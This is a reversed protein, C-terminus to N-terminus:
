ARMVTLVYSNSCDPPGILLPKLKGSTSISINESGCGYILRSFSIGSLSYTEQDDGDFSELAIAEVGNGAVSSAEIYLNNEDSALKIKFDKDDAVINARSVAVALKGKNIVFTKVAHFDKYIRGCDPFKGIMVRSMYDFRVATAYIAGDTPILKVENQDCMDTIHNIANPLVLCSIDTTSGSNDCTYRALKYSDTSYCVARGDASFNFQICNMWPRASEKGVAVSCHKAADALFDKSITISGDDPIKLEPLEAAVKNVKYRSTGCNLGLYEKAFAMTVDGDFTKALVIMRKAEVYTVVPENSKYSKGEMRYRLQEVNNMCEFMLMYNNNKLPSVASIKIYGTGQNDDEKKRGPGNSGLLAIYEITQKLEEASVVIEVSM